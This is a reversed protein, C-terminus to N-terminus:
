IMPGSKSHSMEECTDFDWCRVEKKPTEVLVHGTKRVFGTVMGEEHDPSHVVFADHGAEAEHCIYEYREKNM